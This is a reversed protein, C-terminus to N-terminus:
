CPVNDLRVIDQYNSCHAQLIFSINMSLYIDELKLITVFLKNNQLMVEEENYKNTKTTKFTERNSLFCFMM